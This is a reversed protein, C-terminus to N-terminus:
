ERDTMSRNADREVPQEVGDSPQLEEGARDIIKAGSRVIEQTDERIENTEVNVSTRGPGSSFTLWGAFALLAIVIILVLLAKM